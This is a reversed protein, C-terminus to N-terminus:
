YLIVLGYFILETCHNSPLSVNIEAVAAHGHHSVVAAIYIVAVAINVVAVAADNIAEVSAVSVVAVM